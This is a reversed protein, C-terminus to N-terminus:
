ARPLLPAIAWYVGWVMAAYAIGYVIFSWDYGRPDNIWWCAVLASLVLGPVSLIVTVRFAFQRWKM